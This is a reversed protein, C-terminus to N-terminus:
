RCSTNTGPDAKGFGPSIAVWTFEGMIGTRIIRARTTKSRWAKKGEGCRLCGYVFVHRPRSVVGTWASDQREAGLVQLRAALINAGKVAIARGDARSVISQRSYQPDRNPLQSVDNLATKVFFVRSHKQELLSCRFSAKIREEKSM